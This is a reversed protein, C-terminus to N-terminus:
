KLLHWAEKFEAWRCDDAAPRIRMDKTVKSIPILYWTGYEFLHIVVFDVEEATYGREQARRQVCVRVHEGKGQTGKVQIRYLGGPADAVLDYAGAETSPWCPTIGRSLLESAFSYEAVAGIDVRGM